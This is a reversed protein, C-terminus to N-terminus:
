REKLREKLNKFYFSSVFVKKHTKNLEIESYSPINKNIGYIHNINVITSKSIRIFNRTLLKELEYLKYKVQYIYHVTHASM